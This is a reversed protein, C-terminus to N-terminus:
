NWPSTMAYMSMMVSSAANTAERIRFLAAMKFLDLHTMAWHTAIAAVANRPM